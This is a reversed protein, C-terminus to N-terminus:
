RPTRLHSSVPALSRFSKKGHMVAYDRKGDAATHWLSSTWRYGAPPEGEVTERSTIPPSEAMCDIAQARGQLVVAAHAGAAAVVGASAPQMFPAALDHAPAEAGAERNMSFWKGSGIVM